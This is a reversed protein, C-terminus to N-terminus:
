AREDKRTSSLLARGADTIRVMGFGHRDHFREALGTNVLVREAITDHDHRAGFQRLSGLLYREAYTLEVMRGVGQVQSPESVTM